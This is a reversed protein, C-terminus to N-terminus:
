RTPKTVFEELNAIESITLTIRNDGRQLLVAGDLWSLKLRNHEILEQEQEQLAQLKEQSLRLEEEVKRKQIQISDLSPMVARHGKHPAPSRGKNLYYYVSSDDIGPEKAIQTISMGEASLRQAQVRREGAKERPSTPTVSQDKKEEREQPRLPSLHFASCDECLYPFQQTPNDYKGRNEREWTEADAHSAFYKKDPCRRITVPTASMRCEQKRRVDDREM